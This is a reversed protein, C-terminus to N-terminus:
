LVGALVLASLLSSGLIGRGPRKKKKKRKLLPFGDTLNIYYYLDFSVCSLAPESDVM